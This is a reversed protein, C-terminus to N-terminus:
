PMRVAGSFYISFFLFFSFFFRLRRRSRFNIWGFLITAWKHGIKMNEMYAIWYHLFLFTYIILMYMRRRDRERETHTLGLCVCLSVYVCVRAWNLGDRELARWREDVVNTKRETDCRNKKRESQGRRHFLLVSHKHSHTYEAAVLTNTTTLLVRFIWRPKEGSFCVMKVDFLCAM